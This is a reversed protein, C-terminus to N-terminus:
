LEDSLGFLKAAGQRYERDISIMAVQWLTCGIVNDLTFKIIAARKSCVHWWLATLAEGLVLSM